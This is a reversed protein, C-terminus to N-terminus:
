LDFEMIYKLYGKSKSCNFVTTDDAFLIINSHLPLRNVDNVFVIFLLPGLCSGQAAGYTIDFIDSKKLKM